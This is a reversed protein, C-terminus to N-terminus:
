NCDAFPLPRTAQKHERLIKAMGVIGSFICPQQLLVDFLDLQATHRRARLALAVRGTPCVGARLTYRQRTKNCGLSRRLMAQMVQVCAPLVQVGMGDGVERAKRRAESAVNGSREFFM